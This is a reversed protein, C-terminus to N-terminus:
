IETQLDNIITLKEQNEEIRGLFGLVSGTILGCGRDELDM